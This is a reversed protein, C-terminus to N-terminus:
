RLQSLFVLYLRLLSMKLVLCSVKRATQLVIWLQFVSSNLHLCHTLNQTLQIRGMDRLKIWQYKNGHSSRVSSTRTRIETFCVERRALCDMMNRPEGSPNM